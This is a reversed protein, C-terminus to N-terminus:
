KGDLRLFDFYSALKMSVAFLSIFNFCIYDLIKRGPDLPMDYVGLDASKRGLM